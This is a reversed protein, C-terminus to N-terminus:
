RPRGWWSPLRQQSTWVDFMRLFASRHHAAEDRCCFQVCAVDISHTAGGPAGRVYRVDSAVVQSLRCLVLSCLPCWLIRNRLSGAAHRYCAAPSRAVRGEEERPCACLRLDLISMCVRLRRGTACCSSRVVRHCRHRVYAVAAQPRIASSGVERVAASATAPALRARYPCDFAVGL